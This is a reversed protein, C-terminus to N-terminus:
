IASVPDSEGASLWLLRGTCEYEASSPDVRQEYRLYGCMNPEASSPIHSHGSRDCHLSRELNAGYNINRFYDSDGFIIDTYHHLKCQSLVELNSETGDFAIDDKSGM